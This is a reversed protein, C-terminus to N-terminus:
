TRGRLARVTFLQVLRNMAIGIVTITVVCVVIVDMRAGLQATMMLNSLGAGANFLLEAGVCAIWAFPVAQLIGIMVSPLAGPLLVRRLLLWRGFGYVRGVECYREDVHRLGEYTNLVMPYFAALTIVLLKAAEGNGFWLGILPTLGVIPVQRIGQYLPNILTLAIKSFALLSGTCVGLVIGLVLGLSTRVLSGQLNVWLDGNGILAVLASGVQELPVFAYAHAADRHASLEWALLLLLPVLAGRLYKLVAVFRSAVTM